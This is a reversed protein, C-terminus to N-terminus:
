TKRVMPPVVLESIQAQIYKERMLSMDEPVIIPAELVKRDTAQVSYRGMVEIASGATDSEGKSGGDGKNNNGSHVIFVSPPILASSALKRVDEQIRNDFDVNRFQHVEKKTMSDAGPKHRSEKNPPIPTSSELSPTTTSFIPAAASPPSTSSASSTSTASFSSSTTSSCTSMASGDISVNHVGHTIAEPFGQGSSLVSSGAGSTLATPMQSNGPAITASEAIGGSKDYGSNLTCVRNNLYPRQACGLASSSDNSSGTGNGSDQFDERVNEKAAFPNQKPELNTRPPSFPRVLPSQPPYQLLRSKPEQQRQHPHDLKIIVKEVRAGIADHRSGKADMSSPRNKSKSPIVPLQLDSTPSPPTPPASRSPTSRSVSKHHASTNLTMDERFAIQSSVRGVLNQRHYQQQPQSPLPPNYNRSNNFRDGDPVDNKLSIHRSLPKVLVPSIENNQMVLAEKGNDRHTDHRQSPQQQQFQSVRQQVKSNIRTAGNNMAYQDKTIGGGISTTNNSKNNRLHQNDDKASSYTSASAMTDLSSAWAPIEIAPTRSDIESNCKVDKVPLHQFVLSQQSLQFGPSTPSAAPYQQRQQRGQQGHSHQSYSQTDIPPITPLDKALLNAMIQTTSPLASLQILLDEVQASLDHNQIFTSRLREFYNELQEQKISKAFALGPSSMHMEFVLKSVLELHATLYALVERDEGSEFRIGGTTVNPTSQNAQPTAAASHRRRNRINELSFISLSSGSPGCGQSVIGAGVSAVRPPSSSKQGRDQNNGDSRRGLSPLATPLTTVPAEIGCVHMIEKLYGIWESFVWATSQGEGNKRQVLTSNRDAVTEKLVKDRLEPERALIASLIHVAAQTNSFTPIQDLSLAPSSQFPPQHGFRPQPLPKPISSSRYRQGGLGSARGGVVGFLGGAKIKAGQVNDKSTASLVPAEQIAMTTEETRQVHQCFQLLALPGGVKIFESTWRISGNRILVRLKKLVEEREELLRKDIGMPQNPTSDATTANATMAAVNFTFQDRSSRKKGSYELLLDIFFQPPMTQPTQYFSPSADNSELMAWKRNTPLSELQTVTNPPLSLTTLKESFAIDVVNRDMQDAMANLSAAIPPEQGHLGGLASTRKGARKRAVKQPDALTMSSIMSVDMAQTEAISQRQIPPQLLQQERDEFGSRKKQAYSILVTSSSSPSSNSGMLMSHRFNDGRQREQDERSQEHPMDPMSHRRSRGDTSSDQSHRSGSSNQRGVSNTLTVADKRRQRLEEIGQQWESQSPLRPRNPGPILTLLQDLMISDTGIIAAGPDIPAMESGDEGSGRAQQHQQQLQQHHHQFPVPSVQSATALSHFSQIPALDRPVERVPLVHNEGSGAYGTAGMSPKAMLELPLVMEALREQEQSQRKQQRKIRELASLPKKNSPEPTLSRQHQELADLPQQQQQQQRHYRDITWDESPERQQQTSAAKTTTSGTPDSQVSSQRSTNNSPIDASVNDYFEFIDEMVLSHDSGISSSSDQLNTSISLQSLDTSMTSTFGTTQKQQQLPSPPRPPFPLIGNLKTQDVPNTPQASPVPSPSPLPLASIFFQTSQAPHHKVSYAHERDYMSSDTDTHGDEGQHRVQWQKQQEQQQQEQKHQEQSVAQHLAPRSAPAPLAVASPSSSPAPVISNQQPLLRYDDETYVAQRGFMGKSKWFTEKSPPLPPPPLEPLLKELTGVALNVQSSNNNNSSSSSNNNNNNSKPRLNFLDIKVLPKKDKVKSEKSRNYNNSPSSAQQLEELTSNRKRHLDPSTTASRLLLSPSPPPNHSSDRNDKPSSTMSLRRAAKVIHDGLNSLPSRVKVPPPHSHSHNNNINNIISNISDISTRNSPHSPLPPPPLLSASSASRPNQHHHHQQQPSSSEPDTM